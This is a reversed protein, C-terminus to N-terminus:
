KQRRSFEYIGAFMLAFFAIYLLFTSFGGIYPPLFTIGNIMLAVLGMFGFFAAMVVVTMVVLKVLEKLLEKM